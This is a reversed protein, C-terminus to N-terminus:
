WMAGHMGYGSCRVRGSGDPRVHEQMLLVVYLTVAQQVYM